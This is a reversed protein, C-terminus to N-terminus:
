PQPSLHGLFFLYLSLILCFRREGLSVAEDRNIFDGLGTWIAATAPALGCVDNRETVRLRKANEKIDVRDARASKRTQESTDPDAGRPQKLEM